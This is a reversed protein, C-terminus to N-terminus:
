FTQKKHEKEGECLEPFLANIFIDDFRESKTSKKGKAFSPFFLM